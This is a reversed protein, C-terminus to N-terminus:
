GSGGSVDVVLKGFTEEDLMLPEYEEEIQEHAVVASGLLMISALTLFKNM